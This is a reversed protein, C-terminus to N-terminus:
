HADWIYGPKQPPESLLSDAWSAPSGPEIGSDPLNGKKRLNLDSNPLLCNMIEAVTLEQDQKQQQQQQQQQQQKVTYLKEM